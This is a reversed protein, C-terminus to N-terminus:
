KYGNVYYFGCFRRGIFLWVGFRIWTIKSLMSMLYCNFFLAMVPIWPILPVRFVLNDKATDRKFLCIVTVALAILFISLFLIFGVDKRNVKHRYFSVIICIVLLEVVILLVAVNIVLSTNNMSCGAEFCHKNPSKKQDLNLYYFQGLFFKTNLYLQQMLFPLILFSFFLSSEVKM